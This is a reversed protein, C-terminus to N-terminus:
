PALACDNVSRILEHAGSREVISRLAAVSIRTSGRVKIAPLEGDRIMREIGRVSISLAAAAERKSVALIEV